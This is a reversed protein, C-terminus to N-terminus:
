EDEMGGALKTRLLERARKLQTRVTNDKRGLLKAVESTSYGEFYYLYIVIRYKAPLEQVISVVERNAEDEISLVADAASTFWRRWPSRLVDKCANVTVRIIWAKEHDASTFSKQQRCIKLFVDQCVDQADARNRLYTVAIRLVMDSYTEVLASIYEDTHLGANGM